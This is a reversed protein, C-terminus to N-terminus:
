DEYLDKGVATLAKRLVSHYPKWAIAMSRKGGEDYRATCGGSKKPVLSKCGLPRVSFELTCGNDFFTCEGGWSPDLIKGPANKTAPRVYYGAGNVGKGEWWDVAWLGSRFAAILRPLIEAENEGWQEPASIGPLSKCCVGGCPGCIDPKVTESFTNDSNLFVDIAAKM